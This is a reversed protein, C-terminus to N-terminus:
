NVALLNIELWYEKIRRFTDVLERYQLPKLLFSQAGLAYVLEIDQEPVTATLVIVTFKKRLGPREYLWRLVAFGGEDSLRLSLIVLEPQPYSPRNAYMGEGCFYKVADACSDAVRLPNLIQADALARRMLAVDDANDEILLITGHNPMRTKNAGLRNTGPIQRAASFAIRLGLRARADGDRFSM